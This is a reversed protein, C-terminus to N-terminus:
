APVLLVGSAKMADRGRKGVYWRYVLAVIVILLSLGSFKLVIPAALAALPWLPRHVKALEKDDYKTEDLTGNREDYIYLLGGALVPSTGAASNRWAVSLHPHAGGSVQLRIRHGPLFCHATDTLTAEVKREGAAPEEGPAPDLRVLRDTVNVSRGREDVDNSPARRDREIM